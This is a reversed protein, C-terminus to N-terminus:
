PLGNPRNVRVAARFPTVARGAIHRQSAAMALGTKATLRAIQNVLLSTEVVGRLSEAVQDIGAVVTLSAALDIVVSGVRNTVVAVRPNAVVQGIGAVDRQNALQSTVEVARPNVVPNIGVAAMLSVKRGNAVAVMLNAAQSALRSTVVVSMQNGRPNIALAVKPNAHVGTLSAVLVRAMPTVHSKIAATVTVSQAANAIVQLNPGTTASKVM